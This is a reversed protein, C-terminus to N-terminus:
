STQNAGTALDKDVTNEVFGAKFRKSSKIDGISVGDGSLREGSHRSRM